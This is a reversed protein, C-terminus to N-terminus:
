YPGKLVSFPITQAPHWENKPPNPPDPIQILRDAVANRLNDVVCEPVTVTVGRWIQFVIGNVGVKVDSSENEQMEVRIDYRKQNAFNTAPGGTVKIGKEQPTQEDGSKKVLARLEDIQKQMAIENPSMENKAEPEQKDAAGTDAIFAKNKM